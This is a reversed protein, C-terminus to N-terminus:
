PLKGKKEFSKEDKSKSVFFILWKRNQGINEAYIIGNELLITL